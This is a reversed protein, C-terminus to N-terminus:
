SILDVDPELHDANQAKQNGQSRAVVGMSDFSIEQSDHGMEELVKLIKSKLFQFKLIEYEEVVRSLDKETLEIGYKEVEDRLQEMFESDADLLEALDMDLVETM